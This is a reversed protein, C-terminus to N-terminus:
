SENSVFNKIEEPKFIGKETIFGSIYKAPTIDFAPNIAKTNRGFIKKKKFELIENEDRFEIKIDEGTKCNKDFTSLPAAVYFPIKNEYAVVAKEYTGIKNATDGNLAIRDAGTIVLDIEKKFMFYGAANDVIVRYEIGENELEWATLAGQFRPRTEDVYVFIKKINKAMRIISLATGYDVGVLAGANCHTLIKIEDKNIKEIIKVGNEGIKKCIELNKNYLELAKNKANETADISNKSNIIVNYVSNVYNFLDVATPRTNLIEEKAKEIISLFEYFNKNKFEECALYMALGGAVGIAPAGRIIMQKIANCIERYNKCKFIEFKRPLKTQDIMCVFPVGNEYELYITKYDFIKGKYKVKM